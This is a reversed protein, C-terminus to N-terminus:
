HTISVCHTYSPYSTNHTDRLKM